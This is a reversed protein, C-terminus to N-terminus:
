TNFTDTWEENGSEIAVGLWGFGILISKNVGEGMMFMRSLLYQSEKMGKSAPDSLIEFASEYRGATYARIGRAEKDYLLSIQETEFIEASVSLPALCAILILLTRKM